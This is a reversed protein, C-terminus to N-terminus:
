TGAGRWEDRLLGYFNTDYRRGKAVWRQRLRGECSFGLRCLTANSALNAPNAEAELRQLAMDGFCHSIVAALAEHMLGQGWCSRKLVYGLEARASGADYRFLLLSGVTRAAAKSVIVLQQGTGTAAMAQVRELWAQGDQPGKWTEYPLFKTVEPDGNVELLDGIDGAEVPRIQVRQCSLDLALPASSLSTPPSAANPTAAGM